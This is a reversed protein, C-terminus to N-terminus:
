GSVIRVPQLPDGTVACAPQQDGRAPEGRGCPRPHPCRWGHVARFGATGDPLPEFRRPGSTVGDLGAAAAADDVADLLPALVELAAGARVAGVIEEWRSATLGGDDLAERLQPERDLHVCLAAIRDVPM